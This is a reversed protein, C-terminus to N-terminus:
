KLLEMAESADIEGRELRDLIEATRPKPPPALELRSMLAALRVKVTPYSIGFMKGTKTLNAGSKLLAIIFAQDEDNLKCLPSLELNGEVTIGCEGCTVRSMRMTQGCSPCKLSSINM